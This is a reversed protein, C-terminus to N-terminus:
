ISVLECLNIAAFCDIAIPLHDRAYSAASVTISHLLINQVRIERNIECFSAMAKFEVQDFAATVTLHGRRDQIIWFTLPQSRLIESGCLRFLVGM